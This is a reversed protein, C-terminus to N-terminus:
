APLVLVVQTRQDGDMMGTIRTVGTPSLVSFPGTGTAAGPGTAQGGVSALVPAMAQRLNVAPKGNAAAEVIVGDLGSPALSVNFGFATITRGTTGWVASGIRGLVDDSIPGTCDALLQDVAPASGKITKLNVDIPDSGFKDVVAGGIQELVEASIPSSCDVELQDAAATSGSVRVVDAALAAAKLKDIGALRDAPFIAALAGNIIMGVQAANLGSGAQAAGGQVENSAVSALGNADFAKAVYYFGGGPYTFTGPGNGPSTLVEAAGEAGAATGAYLRVSAVASTGPTAATFAVVDNGGSQTVSLTVPGPAVPTSPTAAAVQALQVDDVLVTNDGGATNLGQLKITHPGATVEFDPTTYSSFVTQYNPYNPKYRGVEVDDILIAFDADNNPRQCAKLTLAYTGAEWGPVVQTLSGTGQIFGGQLGEPPAQAAQWYGSNSRSVGADSFTWGSEAPDMAFQGEGLAPSEFGRNVITPVAM